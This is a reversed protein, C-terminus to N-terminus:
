GWTTLFTSPNQFCGFTMQERNNYHNMPLRLATAMGRGRGIEEEWDLETERHKFVVSGSIQGTGPFWNWSSSFHSGTIGLRAPFWHLSGQDLLDWLTVIESSHLIQLYSSIGLEHITHFVLQLIRGWPTSLQASMEGQHAKSILQEEVWDIMEIMHPWIQSFFGGLSWRSLNGQAACWLDASRLVAWEWCAWEWCQESEVSRVRLVEWEWCKESEVSRVRLVEWEWCKESEVSRVKLVEWEWCQESEVSRVRLVAWEWCKESEVSRVRLVEWEWCKKSEVSRVRLVAWEWCKESEVSSVRLVAWEWCQESEVSSVRLVAWEWCQESEVSSVRLVAWEWCQESEVSSVRLVEWEWCQESEVSRVRLM